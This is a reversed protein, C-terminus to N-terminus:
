RAGHARDAEMRVTLLTSAAQEGGMVSIRANPWMWLQRPSYARGCMGYNGAGFSGGIVVTFKPVNARVRRGDRAQRRGQRDRRARVGQRGHLRHHEAPLRLPTGRQRVARHLARGQARERQLPHRQERPDRGPPRRHARLRVRADHRLAGQVRRVGLRRRHVRDGRARRLRTRPDSPVIATSRVAGTAGASPEAADALSRAAPLERARGGRARARARARRRGRTIPSAPSARTCTPAAWSKPPSSRAPRRRCWRRVASSSRAPARARDDGRRVDGARVRRRRHVLGDGRRDAPDGGGVHAGPQLLHPRLPRPRSVGRGAAALVRRGLRRPLHVAAPEAAAIEQARLHKKVTMPYYTGGKVTADNAVISARRAARRHRDRHRDRGSPADGDYMGTRPSRALARPLRTGPDVLRDIRERATLKGRARHREVAGRAAAQAFADRAARAARRRARADIAANQDSPPEETM